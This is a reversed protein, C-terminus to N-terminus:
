EDKLVEVPDIRLVRRAPVLTGALATAALLLATAAFSLPDIPHLGYLEHRVLWAFPAAFLVGSALGAAALMLGDRVLRRLLHRHPAGVALRIAIERRRRAVTFSVIGYIGIGALLLAFAGGWGLVRWAIRIQGLENDIATALPLPELPTVEGAEVEVTQRLVRVMEGSSSRGKLSVAIMPSLDQYLSTWCYPIEPAGIELYDADRAVGVVEFVSSDRREGENFGGVRQLVFRKGVPDLGPWLRSAMPPNVVAVLPAGAADGERFTRGHLLGVGLMELYGPTVSNRIGTIATSPDSGEAALRVATNIGTLELGSSFSVGVVGPESELRERLARLYTQGAELSTRGAPLQKTMAAIRAPDIGLDSSAAAQLGRAFLIAVTLLVVATAFQVVVLVSHRNIRRGTMATGSAEYKIAPVIDLRSAQLSPALSLLLSAGVALLFAAGLVRWDVSLDVRLLTGSMLPLAM